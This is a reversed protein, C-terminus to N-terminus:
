RSFSIISWKSPFYKRFTVRKTVNVSKNRRFWRFSKTQIVLTEDLLPSGTPGVLPRKRPRRYWNSSAVRRRNELKM